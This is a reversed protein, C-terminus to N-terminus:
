HITKSVVNKGQGRMGARAFLAFRKDSAALPGVRRVRCICLRSCLTSRVFYICKSICFLTIPVADIEPASLGRFLSAALSFGKRSEYRANSSWGITSFEKFCPRAGLEFSAVGTACPLGRRGSRWRSASLPTAANGSSFIAAHKRRLCRSLRVHALASRTRQCIWRSM